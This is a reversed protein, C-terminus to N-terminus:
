PRTLVALINRPMPCDKEVGLKNIAEFESGTKNKNNLHM